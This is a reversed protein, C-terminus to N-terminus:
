EVPGRSHQEDPWLIGGLREFAEDAHAPWNPDLPYGLRRIALLADYTLELLDRPVVVSM